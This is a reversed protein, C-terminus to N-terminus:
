KSGELKSLAKRLERVSNCFRKSDFIEEIEADDVVADAWAVVLNLKANEIGLAKCKISIQRKEELIIDCEKCEKIDRKHSMVPCPKVIAHSHGVVERM